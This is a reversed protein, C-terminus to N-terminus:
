FIKLYFFVFKSINWKMKVYKDFSIGQSKYEKSELSMQIGKVLNKFKTQKKIYITLPNNM